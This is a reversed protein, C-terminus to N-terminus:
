DWPFDENGMPFSASHAGSDIQVRHRLSFDRGKGPISGPRGTPLKTVKSTSNERNM